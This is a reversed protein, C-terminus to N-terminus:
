SRANNEAMKQAIQKLGPLSVIRERLRWFISAKMSDIERRCAGLDRQVSICRGLASYFSRIKEVDCPRLATLSRIPEAIVPGVALVGLGSGHTFHFHPYNHSLEEWLKWVGFGRERVCIDHFLVIARPSLKPEWMRFTNSVAEYSHLGDIHLLDIMGDHFLAVADDFSAQVLQSFAGYLPDHYARLNALTGAPLSGTHIDGQWHDVAYCRCSFALQSVAQCFALYSDGSYVGLEVICAPKAMEVLAFAFPIHEIWASLLSQSVYHPFDLCQSFQLVQFRTDNAASAAADSLSNV